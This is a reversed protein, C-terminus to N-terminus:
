TQAACLCLGMDLCSTGMHAKLLKCVAPPGSPQLPKMTCLLSPPSHTSHQAALARQNRKLLVFWFASMSVCRALKMCSRTWDSTMPQMKRVDFSKLHVTVPFKTRRTGAACLLTLSSNFAGLTASHALTLGYLVTRVTLDGLGMAM